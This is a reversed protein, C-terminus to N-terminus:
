QEAQAKKIEDAPKRVIEHPLPADCRGNGDVDVFVPNTLAYPLAAEDATGSAAAQQVVPFLSRNGLVEVEITSDRDVTFSLGDSFKVVSLDSAKVPLIFRRQGNVIIRVEDVAVWPASRVKIKLDIRGSKDTFTDGCTYRSNATFEVFPGNTVFARGGKLAGAVKSWDLREGKEGEYRIYVRSYGPEQGDASHSDSSGTIPYYFGRDLLHLWDEVAEDNAAFFAPGNMVELLDFGTDFNEASFAASERDLRANNFYGLDEARPHNVQFLAGPAKARAGRFLASVRDAVPSVAGHNAENEQYPFPYVNFHIYDDRPTVEEGPLVALWRDLGLKKLTPLYDTIYNHDTAVALDVGEAVISRLRDLIRVSSDSNITHLHPDLSVFGRTDVVKDVRFELDLVRDELVEVVKQDMTSEPGRSAFILYSGAAVRVETGEEDPYRSNKSREHKRGTETPDDPEFYPTRTPDLGIFTVKGPVFAGQSDRIRVKITGLHPNKLVCVNGDNPRGVAFLKESVAPFVNATVRYTGEPLPVECSTADRMFSRFYVSSSFADQVVIEMLGDPFDEFQFSAPRTDKKLIGFIRELLSGGRADVLLTYRVEFSSGAPLSGPLPAEEEEIPNFNIWGVYLGKKQYVRFNLDPAKEKDYPSFSYYSHPGFYLSYGLDTIETPGSNTLVSALEITGAGPSFAYTTRIDAKEGSEGAYVTSAELRVDQGADQAKLPKISAYALYGTRGKVRVVPAGINLDNVLGKGAPVLGLISGMADPAPYNLMSKMPRSSGGVLALVNGDMVLFDGKRWITSFAEPLDKTGSIVKIEVQAGLFLPFLLCFLALCTKSSLTM